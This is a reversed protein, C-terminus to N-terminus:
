YGKCPLITRPECFTVSTLIIDRDDEPLTVESCHRKRIQLRKLNRRDCGTALNAVSLEHVLYSQISFGQDRLQRALNYPELQHLSSLVWDLGQAMEEIRVAM